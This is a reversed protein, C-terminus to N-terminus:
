MEFDNVCLYLGDTHHHRWLIKEIEEIRHPSIWSGISYAAEVFTCPYSKDRVNTVEGAKYIDSISKYGVQLPVVWGDVPKSSLEWHFNIEGDENTTEENVAQYKLAVFDLWSDLMERSSQTSEQENHYTSLSKARSVLCFGPLLKRLTSNIFSSRKDDPLTHLNVSKINDIRGGALRRTMIKNKFDTELRKRKEEVDPIPIPIDEPTFDCEIVLSVTMHLRGDEIISPPGGEKTLPNRTLSFTRKGYAHEYALLQHNHCIIATGGMKGRLENPLTRTLAHTFGLFHTPGPFGYTLGSVANANSVEINQLVLLSKM